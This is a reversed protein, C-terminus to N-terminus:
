TALNRGVKELLSFLTEIEEKTLGKLAMAEVTKMKEVARQRLDFAKQTPVIKKWRTDGPVPIRTIFGKKEMRQLLATASSSRIELEVEIDKQFITKESHETLYGMVLGQMGTVEDMGEISAKVKQFHRSMLNAIRKVALGLIYKREM